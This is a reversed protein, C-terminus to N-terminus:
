EDKTPRFVPLKEDGELAEGIGHGHLAGNFYSRYAAVSQFKERLPFEKEMFELMESDLWEKEFNMYFLENLFHTLNLGNAIGIKEGDRDANDKVDEKHLELKPLKWGKGVPGRKKATKAKKAPTKKTTKKTAKKATKKATKKAM